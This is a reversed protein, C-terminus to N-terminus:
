EEKLTNDIWTFLLSWFQQPDEVMPFHGFKDFHYFHADPFDRIMSKTHSVPWVDHESTLILTPGKYRRSLLKINYTELDRQLFAFSRFGLREASSLLMRALKPEPKEFYMAYSKQFKLNMANEAFNQYYQELADKTQITFKNRINWAMEVRYKNDVGTALFIASAIRKHNAILYHLAVIGGIGHGFVVIKKHGLTKRLDEVDKALVKFKIKKSSPSDPSKGHGRYSFSVIPRNCSIGKLSNCLYMRDLPTTHFLYLPIGKGSIIEHHLEM